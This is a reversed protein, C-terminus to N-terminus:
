TQSVNLVFEVFLTIIGQGEEKFILLMLCVLFCAAGAGLYDDFVFLYHEFAGM